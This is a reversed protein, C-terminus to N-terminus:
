SLCLCFLSHALIILDMVLMSLPFVAHASPPMIRVLKWYFYVYVAMLTLSIALTIAALIDPASRRATRFVVLLAALFLSLFCLSHASALLLLAMTRDRDWVEAFEVPLLESQSIVPINLWGLVSALLLWCALLVIHSSQQAVPGFGRGHSTPSMAPPPTQPAMRRLKALGEQIFDDYKKQLSDLSTAETCTMTDGRQAMLLDEMEHEEERTFIAAAM